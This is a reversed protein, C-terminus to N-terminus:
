NSSMADINLQKGESHEFEYFEQREVQSLWYFFSFHPDVHDRGHSFCVRCAIPRPAFHATFRRPSAPFFSLKRFQFAFASRYGATFPKRLASQLLTRGLRERDVSTGKLRSKVFRVINRIAPFKRHFAPTSRPVTARAPFRQKQRVRRSHIGNAPFRGAFRFGIRKEM